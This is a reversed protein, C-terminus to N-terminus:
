VFDVVDIIFALVEYDQCQDTIHLYVFVIDILFIYEYRCCIFFEIVGGCLAVGAGGSAGGSGRWERAVGAGGSGRWERAVVGAGSGRWECRWERAVRVAVRVVVRVAVRLNIPRLWRRQPACGGTYFQILDEAYEIYSM